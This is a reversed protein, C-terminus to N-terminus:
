RAAIRIPLSKVGRMVPSRTRVVPGTVELGKVRSILAKATTAMELRALPAGLCYHIGSGFGVHDVPNRTGIFHDPDPYHREDRNASGYIVMVRAGAPIIDDGLEVDATTTRFIAQVPSDHRLAEETFSPILSPDDRITWWQEPQDVLAVTGNGIANTTTENGASLLLMCFSVLERSSLTEADTAALLLNILDTADAPPHARRDAILEKFYAVFEGVSARIRRMEVEDLAGGALIVLDTSWRKFDQRHEPPVGLLEAIVIMPLPEALATFLDCERADLMVDLLDNVITRVRPELDAVV